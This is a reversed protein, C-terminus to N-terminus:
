TNEASGFVQADQWRIALLEILLAVQLVQGFYVYHGTTTGTGDHHTGKGVGCDWKGGTGQVDTVAIVRQGQAQCGMNDRFLGVRGDRWLCGRFHMLAQM